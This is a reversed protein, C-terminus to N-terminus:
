LTTVDAKSNPAMDAPLEDSVLLGKADIIGLRRLRDREALVRAFGEEVSQAQWAAFQERDSPDIDALTVPRTKLAQQAV